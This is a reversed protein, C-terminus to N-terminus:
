EWECPLGSSTKSVMDGVWLLVAPGWATDSSARHSGAGRFLSKKTEETVEKLLTKCNIAKNKSKFELHSKLIFTIQNEAKLFKLNYYLLLKHKGM